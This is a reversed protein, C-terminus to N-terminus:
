QGRSSGTTAAAPEAAPAGAALAGAIPVTLFEVLVRNFTGPDQWLAFHSADEFVTLQANPILAAMEQIQTLLIIEDHDGDAMMVPARIGHLQERTIGTPRRWLPLLAEVLANYPLRSKSMRQYDSRCRASYAAFTTSPSTRPKSGSMDYNAAFM